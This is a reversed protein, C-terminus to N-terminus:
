YGHHCSRRQWLAIVAATLAMFMVMVLFGHPINDYAAYNDRFDIQTFLPVSREGLPVQAMFVRPKVKRWVSARLPEALPITCSFKGNEDTLVSPSEAPTNTYMSVLLAKKDGSDKVDINKYQGIIQQGTYFNRMPGFSLYPLPLMTTFANDRMLAAQWERTNWGRGYLNFQKQVLYNQERYRFRALVTCTGAVPSVFRVVWTGNKVVPTIKHVATAFHAVGRRVDEPKANAQRFYYQGWVEEMEVASSPVRNERNMLVLERYASGDWETGEKESAFHFVPEAAIVSASFLLSLVCFLFIHFLFFGLASDNRFTGAQQPKVM